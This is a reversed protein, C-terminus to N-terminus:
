GKQMIGYVWSFVYHMKARQCYVLNRLSLFTQAHFLHGMLFHSQHVKLSQNPAWWVMEFMDMNAMTDVHIVKEESM